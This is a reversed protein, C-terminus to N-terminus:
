GPAPWPATPAARPSPRAAPTSRRRPRIRHRLREQHQGGLVRDLALADVLQGLRLAVPEQHPHDDAVGGLRPAPSGRGCPRRGASAAGTSSGSSSSASCAAAPSPTRAGRRRRTRPAAPAPWGRGPRPEPQGVDGAPERVAGARAGREAEDGGGPRQGQQAAAVVHQGGVHEVDGGVHERWRSTSEKSATASPTAARPSRGVSGRATGGGTSRARVPRLVARAPRDGRSSASESASSTRVAPQPPQLQGDGAAEVPQQM